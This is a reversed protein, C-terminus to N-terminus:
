LSSVGVFLVFVIIDEDRTGDDAYRRSSTMSSSAEIPISSGWLLLLLLLLEVVLRGFSIVPISAVVQIGGFSDSTGRCDNEWSCCCGREGWNVAARRARDESMPTRLLDKSESLLSWM